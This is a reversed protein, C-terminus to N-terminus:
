VIYHPSCLVLTIVHIFLVSHKTATAANKNTTITYKGYNVISAAAHLHSPMAEPKCRNKVMEIRKLQWENKREIKRQSCCGGKTSDCVLSIDIYSIDIEDVDTDTLFDDDVNNNSRRTKWELEIKTRVDNNWEHRADGIDCHLESETM